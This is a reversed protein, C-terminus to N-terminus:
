RDAHIPDSSLVRFGWDHGRIVPNSWYRYVAHALSKLNFWSGGRLVCSYYRNDAHTSHPNNYDNLCWEWVMGALDQVGYPSSGHPYLGVSTTQGLYWKGDNRSKEDINCFGSRYNNGWPYILGNTGRAAKEWEQETPLRIASEELGLVASLWRTYAVSEYWDVDTRPRNGQSWTSTVPKPQLLDKWLEALVSETKSVPDIFAQFQRNTIPYRSIWYTPLERKEGNQYIFPGGPIEIWEIDPLGNADLGVGRRPDGLRDLEDGIALRRPPETAPNNIEDLLSQIKPNLTQQKGQEQKPVKQESSEGRVGVGRGPPSLPKEPESAPEQFRAVEIPGEIEVVGVGPRPDGLEALRDGIELRRPPTTEPNNIEALLSQIEPPFEMQGM